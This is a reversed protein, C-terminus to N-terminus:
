ITQKQLKKAENRLLDTISAVKSSKWMPMCSAKEDPVPLVGSMSLKLCLGWAIGSRESIQHLSVLSEAKKASKAKRNSGFVPAKRFDASFACPGDEGRRRRFPTYIKFTREGPRLRLQSTM